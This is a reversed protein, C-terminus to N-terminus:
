TVLEYHNCGSSINMKAASCQGSCPLVLRHALIIPVEVVFAVAAKRLCFTGNWHGARGCPCFSCSSPMQFRQGNTVSTVTENECRCSGKRKGAEVLIGMVDNTSLILIATTSRAGLGTGGEWEMRGGDRMVYLEEPPAAGFDHPICSPRQSSLHPRRQHCHPNTQLTNPMAIQQCGTMSLDHTHNM